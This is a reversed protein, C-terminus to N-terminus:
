RAILVKRVEKEGHNHLELLYSGSPIGSIDIRIVNNVRHVSNRQLVVRGTLDRILLNSVPDHCIINLVEAAPIPFIKFEREAPEQIGITGVSIYDKRLMTDSGTLNRVILQVNYTGQTNYRIFGPNQLSSSSPYGGPFSWNWQFPNSISYDTFEVSDGTLITAPVGTFWAMPMPPLPLIYIYFPKALVSFGNANESKLTVSFVGPFTYIHWPHQIDSTDGDGFQWFWDTPGHLSLDTFHITDGPYAFLPSASFDASPPAATVTIYDIKLLSDSGSYNSVTLKVSYTGPVQYIHQPHQLTSTQGDGFDWLWQTPINSSLDAFQVASGAAIVLPSASFDAAPTPPVTVTIYNTKVMTDSGINNYAILEVTYQGPQTYIHTPHQLTSSDGDGFYWKWTTATGTTLNTFVVPLGSTINTVNASFDASPPQTIVPKLGLIAGQDFSFNYSAPTLSSLYFYGNQSGSWGWNCHFHNNLAGQYGDIVWSHGDAQVANYGHYIVPRLSDLESRIMMEWYSNSFNNKWHLAATTAYGFNNVMADRADSSYAGSGTPGYDMEVSVGAHYNVQAVASNAATVTAPMAAWNYTASGFNASQTGYTNHFYSNSGTGNTPHSWYKMVQAMSTAVCGVPVRNCYSAGSAVDYPCDANYYCGQGWEIPGLLPLVSTLAMPSFNGEAVNYHSWALAAEPTVPLSKDIHHQIQSAYNQMVAIFSPSQQEIDFRYNKALSYGPFPYVRDDGSVIVFGQGPLGNFLHLLVQNGNSITQYDSITFVTGNSREYYLNRALRAATEPDVPTSYSFMRILLMLSLLLHIRMMM